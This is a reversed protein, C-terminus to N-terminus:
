NVLKNLLLFGEFDKLNGPEPLGMKRVLRSVQDLRKKKDKKKLTYARKGFLLRWNSCFAKEAHSSKSLEADITTVIRLVVYSFGVVGRLNLRVREGDHLQYFRPVEKTPLLGPSSLRTLENSANELAKDAQGDRHVLSNRCEKFYRFVHLLNDLYQLSNNKSNTLESYFAAELISSTRNTLRRMTPAVGGTGDTPFQLGKEMAKSKIGLEKLIGHIWSEYLSCVDILLIRAFIEQQEEWPTVSFVKKFNVGRMGSGNVFRSDLQETTANPLTKLFGNVQWRMNWLAVSTPWLFDFLETLRKSAFRSANFFLYKSM